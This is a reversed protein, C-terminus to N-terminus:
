KRNLSGRSKRRRPYVWNSIRNVMREIEDESPVDTQLMNLAMKRLAADATYGQHILEDFDFRAFVNRAATYGGNVSTVPRGKRKKGELIDAAYELIESPINVERLNRLSDSVLIPSVNKGSAIIDALKDLYHGQMCLDQTEEHKEDDSLSDWDITKITAM